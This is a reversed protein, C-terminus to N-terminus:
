EKLRTILELCMRSNHYPCKWFGALEESPYPQSDKNCRAFWEGQTRNIIHAKIYEWCRLAIARSHEDGWHQFINYFGVVAEAQVWWHRDDDLEGTSIKKEYALSGDANLGEEAARALRLVFPEVEALLAKEGLERAAEDLLWSCEIDHGFSITPEGGYTWDNNFFLQLHFNEGNVIKYCFINILNKVAAGVRDIIEKEGQLERLARLLNTYPELLHLHTNQSKPFNADHLSLRLDDLAQWDRTQAEIYGNYTQDLAHEEITNFLEVAQALSLEDGAARAYETLGYLAFGLAYFQKKTDIPEGKYDVAWYVGGYDHDLLYTTLFAKARDAAELYEKKQLVRYAAAFSWLIRATLIAGKPADEVITGDSRMQGYFGGREYDSMKELWFRLINKELVDQLEACLLSRNM